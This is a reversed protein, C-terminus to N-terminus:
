FSEKLTLLPISVTVSTGRQKESEVQISGNHKEIISQVINLGLGTSAKGKRLPKTRYFREFIHPLQEHDMGIGNDTITFSAQENVADVDVRVEISGEDPTYKISNSVINFFVQEMRLPDLIVKVDQESDRTTSLSYQLNESYLISSYNNFMREVFSYWEVKEMQFCLQKSEILNLQRLDSLLSEMLRSQNFIEEFYRKKDTPIIEDIMGKSIIRISMIPNSLDHCVNSIIQRKEQEIRIMELNAKELEMTREKVKHQLLKKMTVTESYSVLFRDTNLASHITFFAFLGVTKFSDENLWESKVMFDQMYCVVLTIISIFNGVAQITHDSLLRFSHYAVYLLYCIFLITFCDALQSMFQVSILCTLVIFAGITVWITYTLYKYPKIKLYSHIYYHFGLVTLLTFIYSSKFVVEWNGFPFITAALALLILWCYVSFYLAGKDDPNKVYFESQFVSVIFLFGMFFVTFVFLELNSATILSYILLEEHINEIFFSPSSFMVMFCMAIITGIGYRIIHFKYM